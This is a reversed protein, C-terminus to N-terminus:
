FKPLKPPPPAGVAADSPEPHELRRALERAQQVYTRLEALTSLAQARSKHVPTSLLRELREVRDAMQEIRVTLAASPDDAGSGRMRVTSQLPAPPADSVPAAIGVAPLGEPQTDRLSRGAGPLRVTEAYAPHPMPRTDDAGLSARLGAPSVGRGAPLAQLRTSVALLQGDDDRCASLTMAVDVRQGERTRVASRLRRDGGGQLVDAFNRVEGRREPTLLREIPVGQLLQDPYGLLTHAAANAYQVKRDHGVLFIPVDLADVASRMLM